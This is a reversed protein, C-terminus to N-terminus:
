NFEIDCRIAQHDSLKEELVKFNYASWHKDALIFDIRFPFILQRYTAGFGKGSELFADKHDANLKRYIYSQPVDNFDGCILTPYPSRNISEIIKEAQSVRKSSAKRIKNSLKQTKDQLQEELTEEDWEKLLSYDDNGLHLSELHLNYVRVTDRHIILDAYCSSNTSTENFIIKQSSVIEYKSYIQSFGFTANYPYNLSSSMGKRAEQLCLVDTNEQNLFHSIKSQHTQVKEKQGGSFYSLQSNFSLVSFSNDQALAKFKSKAHFVPVSFFYSLILVALSLYIAKNFRVLWYLVFFLHTLLLIPYGIALLAGLSFTKPNIYPSLFACFWLLLFVINITYLLKNILSLNKL